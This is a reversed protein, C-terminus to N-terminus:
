KNRRRFMLMSALGVGAMALTSPEPVSVLNLASMAGLNAQPNASAGSLVATFV